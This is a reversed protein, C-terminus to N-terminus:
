TTCSRLGKLPHASLHRVVVNRLIIGDSSIFPKFHFLAAFNFEFFWYKVPHLVSKFLLVLVLYICLIGTLMALAFSAFLEELTAGVGPQPFNRSVVEKSLLMALYRLRPRAEHAFARYDPHGTNVQWREEILRSRWPQLPENVEEPQPIGADARRHHESVIRVPVIFVREREGQRALVEVSETASASLAEITALNGGASLSLASSAKWEFSVGERIARGHEDAAIAHLQKREQVALELKSPRVTVAFLPGPPFLEPQEALVAIRSCRSVIGILGRGFPRGRNARPRAYV